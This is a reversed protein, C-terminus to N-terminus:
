SLKSTFLTLLSRLIDNEQLLLRIHNDLLLTENNFQDLTQILPITICYEMNWYKDGRPMKTGKCGAVVYNFFRNDYLTHYLFKSYKQNDARYCLVDSSCGGDCTAYWIKKYYPRINSILIDNQKYATVNTNEPLVSTKEIGMKDKLMDETSIYKSSEIEHSSIKENAYKCVDGLKGMRWGEPLNEKDIGEVFTHHYLAQATAELKQILAENNKIRREITQYQEVIKRQEAIPPVPIKINCFDDWQLSGRVGGVAHFAAERDFEPRSFYIMLYEPILVNTDKVQFMPYAPSMIASEEDFMAVPMKGDRSVQMLSCAFQKNRIVKYKALDTGITNAVSKIFKKDVTLGVLKFISLDTNRNDILEIYDGLPKYDNRKM